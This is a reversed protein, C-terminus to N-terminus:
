ILTTDPNNCTCLVPNSQLAAAIAGAGAETIGNSALNLSTLTQSTALVNAMADAGASIYM